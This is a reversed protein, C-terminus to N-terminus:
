VEGRARPLVEGQADTGVGSAGVASAERVSGHDDHAACQRAAPPEPEAARHLVPNHQLRPPAFPARARVDIETPIDSDAWTRSGLSELTRLMGHGVMAEAFVGGHTPALNQRHCAHDPSATVLSAARRWGGCAGGAGGRGAGDRVAGCACWAVSGVGVGRVNLTALTVRVVKEKSATRAQDALKYVTRAELFVVPALRCFSLVWLCFTVEYLAQPSRAMSDLLVTLRGVVNPTTLLERMEPARVFVMMANVAAAPYAKPDDRVPVSLEREIWQAFSDTIAVVEPRVSFMLALCAAAKHTVYADAPSANLVRLLSHANLHSRGGEHTVFLEVRGKPDAARTTHM